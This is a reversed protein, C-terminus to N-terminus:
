SQGMLPEGAIRRESTDEIRLRDKADLQNTAQTRTELKTLRKGNRNRGVMIWLSEPLLPEQGTKRRECRQETHQEEAM